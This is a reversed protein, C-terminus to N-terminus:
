ALGAAERASERDMFSRAEAILGNRFTVLHCWVWEVEPGDPPSARFSAMGLVRDGLDIIEQSEIRTDGFISLDSLYTRVEEKGRHTGGGPMRPDSIWVTDDCFFALVAEVGDAGDLQSAEYVKRLTAVNSDSM